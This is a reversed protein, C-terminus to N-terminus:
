GNKRECNMGKISYRFDKGKGFDDLNEGTTGELLTITKYKACPEKRSMKKHNINLLTCSPKMFLFSIRKKFMFVIYHNSTRTWCRVVHIQSYLRTNIGSPM